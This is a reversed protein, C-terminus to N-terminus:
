AIYHQWSITAVPNYKLLSFFFKSPSVTGADGGVVHYKVHDPNSKMNYDNVVQYLEGFNESGSVRVVGSKGKATSLLCPQGRLQDGLGQDDDQDDCDTIGEPAYKTYRRMNLLLSNAKTSSGTYSHGSNKVSIELGYEKAFAIAAIVDSATRPHLVKGPLNGNPNSPDQIWAKYEDPYTGGPSCDNVMASLLSDVREGLAYEASNPKPDCDAFACFLSDMCLGSPQDILGWNTRNGDFCGSYDDFQPVCEELYQDIGAHILSSPDLLKNGLKDWPLDSRWGKESDADCRRCM